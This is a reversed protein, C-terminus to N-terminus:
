EARALVGQRDLVYRDFDRALFLRGDYAARAEQEIDHMTLGSKAEPAASKGQGTDQYRPSFHTLVLNPVAAAQAARATMAASSHQPGPGVRGLVPETYTAEHVLVDAGRAEDILLEPRDNDGGVVVCRPKRPALRFDNARLLRGDDLLVDHGRQLEGWRADARIGAARLRVVDLRREVDRERFTYAWSPLRHSLPTSSVALDPLVNPLPRGAADGHVEVFEIPFPLGLQTTDMVGQLFARLPAPGAVYLLESRNLMGASALLGPLGYCHDGHMHTIFVARLDILSLRTRLIRHQTAEGCDVLAWHRSGEGRLALGSVNRTRSPTGSSTGLFILEM